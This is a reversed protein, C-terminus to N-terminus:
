GITHDVQVTGFDRLTAAALEADNGVIQKIDEIVEFLTSTDDNRISCNCVFLINLSKVCSLFNAFKGM